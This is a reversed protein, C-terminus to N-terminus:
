GHRGTSLFYIFVLAMSLALSFRVNVMEVGKQELAIAAAKTVNRTVGRLRHISSLEPRQLVYDILSGGQQGTAGLITLVSSM